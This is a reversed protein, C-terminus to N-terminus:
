LPLDPRRCLHSPAPAGGTPRPQSEPSCHAPISALLLNANLARTPNVEAAPLPLLTRGAWSPGRNHLKQSPRAVQREQLKSRSGAFGRRVTASSRLPPSYFALGSRSPLQCSWAIPAYCQASTFPPSCPTASPLQPRCHALQAEPVTPPSPSIVGLMLTIKEKTQLLFLSTYCGPSNIPRIVLM